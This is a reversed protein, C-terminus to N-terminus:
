NLALGDIAPGMSKSSARVAGEEQLWAQTSASSQSISLSDEFFMSLSVEHELGACPLGTMGVVTNDNQLDALASSGIMPRHKDGRVWRCKLNLVTPSFIGSMKPTPIDEPKLLIVHRDGRKWTEYSESYNPANKRLIRYLDRATYTIMLGSKEQVQISLAVAEGESGSYICDMTDAYSCDDM